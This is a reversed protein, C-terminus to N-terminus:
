KTIIPPRLHWGKIKRAQASSTWYPPRRHHTYYDAEWQRNIHGVADYAPAHKVADRAVDVRLTRESWDITDVWEPPIVVKAGFWWNRTDVVVYRVAWDLDDFLFDEIHGLEGDTAALTYGAVERCSRLHSADDSLDEEHPVGTLAPAPAPVIASPVAAGGWLGAAGWYPPLGYYRLYQLEKRRSLPQDTEISPSDKVQQRTLSVSSLIEAVHIRCKVLWRTRGASEEQEIKRAVTETALAAGYVNQVLLAHRLREEVSVPFGLVQALRQVLRLNVLGLSSVVLDKTV